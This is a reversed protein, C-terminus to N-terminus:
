LKLERERQRLSLISILYLYLTSISISSSLLLYNNNKYMYVPFLCYFIKDTLFLFFDVKLPTPTDSKLKLLLNLPILLFFNINEYKPQGLLITRKTVCRIGRRRSTGCISM